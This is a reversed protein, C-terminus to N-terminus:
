NILTYIIVRKKKDKLLTSGSYASGVENTDVDYKYEGISEKFRKEGFKGIFGGVGLGVSSNDFAYIEDDSPYKYTNGNLFADLFKKNEEPSGTWPEHRSQEENQDFYCIWCEDSINTNIHYRNFYDGDDVNRDNLAKGPNWRNTNSKYLKLYNGNNERFIVTYEEKYYKYLTPIITELGVIRNESSEGEVEEYELYESMDSKHLVIDATHRAKSFMYVSVSLAITLVLVAFGMKLAEVANEM